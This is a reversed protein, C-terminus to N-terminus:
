EQAHEFPPLPYLRAQLPWWKLALYKRSLINQIKARARVLVVKCTKLTTLQSIGQETGSQDFFPEGHLVALVNCHKEVCLLLDSHWSRTGWCPPGCPVSRRWSRGGCPAPAASWIILRCNQQVDISMVEWLLKARLINFFYNINYTNALFRTSRM